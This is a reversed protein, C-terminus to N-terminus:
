DLSGGVTSELTRPKFPNEVIGPKRETKLFLRVIYGMVAKFKLTGPETEWTSPNCNLVVMSLM